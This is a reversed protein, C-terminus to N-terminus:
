WRVEKLLRELNGGAIMRKEEQSINAYVVMTVALGPSQHPLKTGFILREPGFNKCIYEVGRHVLFRSIEVYLNNFRDLLPFLTRCTRYGPQLIIVPLNPHHHCISYISDASFDDGNFSLNTFDLFVPVRAEELRDFLRGMSWEELSFRHVSDDPFLRVSRVKKEKMLGIFEEPSPMEDSFHPLASWSPYLRNDGEIGEMLAENGVVPHYERSQASYVLAKEIKYKDMERILAQRGLPFRESYASWKGVMCNADFFTLEEM